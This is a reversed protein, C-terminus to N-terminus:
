GGGGPGFCEPAGSGLILATMALLVWIVRATDSNAYRYAKPLWKM